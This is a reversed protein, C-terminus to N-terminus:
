LLGEPCTTLGACIITFLQSFAESCCLVREVARRELCFRRAHATFFPFSTCCFFLPARKASREGEGATQLSRHDAIAAAEEGMLAAAEVMFAEWQAAEEMSAEGVIDETSAKAEEMSDALSSDATTPIALVVTSATISTITTTLKMVTGVVLTGGIVPAGEITSTGWIVTAGIPLTGGTAMSGIKLTVFIM